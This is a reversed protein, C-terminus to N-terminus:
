LCLVDRASGFDAFRLTAHTSDSETIQTFTLLTYQSILNLAYQVTSQQAVSLTQGSDPEGAGYGSGYNSAATPFSYTLNSTAWYYGSQLGYIDQVYFTM